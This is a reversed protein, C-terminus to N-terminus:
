KHNSVPPAISHEWELLNDRLLYAGLRLIMDADLGSSLAYKKVEVMIPDDRLSYMVRKAVEQVDYETYNKPLSNKLNNLLWERKEKDVLKDLGSERLYKWGIETPNVPSGKGEAGMRQAERGTLTDWVKQFEEKIWGISAEIAGLRNGGYWAIAILSAMIGFFYIIDIKIVLETGEM